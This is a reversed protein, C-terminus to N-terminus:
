ESAVLSAHLRRLNFEKAFIAFSRPSESMFVPADLAM